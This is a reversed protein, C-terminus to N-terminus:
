GHTQEILTVAVNSYMLDMTGGEHFTVLTCNFVQSMVSMENM